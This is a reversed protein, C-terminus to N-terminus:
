KRYKDNEIFIFLKNNNVSFFSVQYDRLNSRSIMELNFEGYNMPPLMIDNGGNEDLRNDILVVKQGNEWYMKKCFNLLTMILNRKRDRQVIINYM